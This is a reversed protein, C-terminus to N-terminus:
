GAEELSDGSSATQEPHIRPLSLRDCRCMQLCVSPPAPSLTHGFTGEAKTKAWARPAVHPHAM